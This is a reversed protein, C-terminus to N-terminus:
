EYRTNSNNKESKGLKEKLQAIELEEQLKKKEYINKQLEDKRIGFNTFIVYLVVIIPIIFLGLLELIKEPDSSDRSSRIILEYIIGGAYTLAIILTIIGLVMVTIRKKRKM